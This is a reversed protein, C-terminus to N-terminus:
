ILSKFAYSVICFFTTNYYSHSSVDSLCLLLVCVLACANKFAQLTIPAGKTIIHLPKIGAEVADGTGSWVQEAWGRYM